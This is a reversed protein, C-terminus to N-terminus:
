IKSVHLREGKGQESVQFLHCLLERAPSEELDATDQLHKSLEEVEHLFVSEFATSHDDHTRGGCQWDGRQKMMDYSTSKLRHFFGGVFSFIGLFM